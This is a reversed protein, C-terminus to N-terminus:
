TDKSCHHYLDLGKTSKSIMIKTIGSERLNSGVVNGEAVKELDSAERRTVRPLLSALFEVWDAGVRCNM